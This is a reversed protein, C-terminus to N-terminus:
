SARAEASDDNIDALPWPGGGVVQWDMGNRGNFDSEHPRLIEGVSDSVESSSAAEITIKVTVEYRPM